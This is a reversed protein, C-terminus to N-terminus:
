RAEFRMEVEGLRLTDNHKLAGTQVKQGNVFVHNLSNLDSISVGGHRPDAYIEAHNRSVSDHQIVLDNGEARGISIRDARLEFVSGGEVPILRGRSPASMVTAGPSAPSAASSGAGSDPLEEGDLEDERSPRKRLAFILLGVAILVAAGLGAFIWLDPVGLGLLDDSADADPAPQRETDAKVDSAPADSTAAREAACEALERPPPCTPDLGAGFTMEVNSGFSAEADAEMVLEVGATQYGSKVVVVGSRNRRQDIAAILADAGQSSADSLSVEEFAGGTERALLRLAERGRSRETSGDGAWFLGLADVRVGAERAVAAAQDPTVLSDEALGDSLVVIRKLAAREPLLRKTADIVGSFIFTSSGELPTTSIWEQVESLGVAPSRDLGNAFGVIMVARGPRGGVAGAIKEAAARTRTLRAGQGRGDNRSVDYLILTLEDYGLDRAKPDDLRVYEREINKGDQDRVTVFTARTGTPLAILCRGAGLTEPRCDLPGDSRVTPEAALAAQPLVLLALFFTAILAVQRALPRASALGFRQM